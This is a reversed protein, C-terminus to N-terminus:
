RRGRQLRERSTSRSRSRRRKSRSRSRSRKSRSRKRRSSKSYSRASKEPTAVARITREETLVVESSRNELDMRSKRSNAVKEAMTPLAPTASQKPVRIYMGIKADYTVDFGKAPAPAETSLSIKKHPDFKPKSPQLSNVAMQISERISDEGVPIWLGKGSSNDKPIHLQNRLDTM